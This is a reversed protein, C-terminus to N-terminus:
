NGLKEYITDMEGMMDEMAKQTVSVALTQEKMEKEIVQLRSEFEKMGRVIEELGPLVAKDHSELLKEAMSELNTLSNEVKQPLSKMGDTILEGKRLKKLVGAIFRRVEIGKPTGSVMLVEWLGEETFFRRERNKLVGGELAESKMLFSARRERLEPHSAIMNKFSVLNDYGALQSVQEMTFLFEDQNRYFDISIGQFEQTLLLKNM